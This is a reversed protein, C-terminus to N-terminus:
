INDAFGQEERIFFLSGVFFVFMTMGISVLLLTWNLEVNGLLTARFAEILGAMPNLGALFRFKEPIISTPYIVPTLFLLIQVLFPMIHKVDRFRVNVASLVMGMGIALLALPVMLLPWFLIGWGIPVGFAIMMFILIVFAITFDVLGSLVAAIPMIMRPFYVKTVLQINNVLCLGSNSLATAFFTWPLLGSYSFIPYPVGDSPMKALKGFFVTFIVMALLPQAVAWTAGLATQSYRVKVDRWILFFLLERYPWLGKFASVFRNADGDVVQVNNNM